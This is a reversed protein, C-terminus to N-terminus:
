VLNNENVVEYFGAPNMGALPSLRVGFQPTTHLVNKKDVLYGCHVFNKCSFSVLTDPAPEKIEEVNLGKYIYDNIAEVPVKLRDYHPDNLNKGARKACYILLGICDFGEQQNRGHAKYPVNLLDEYYIM